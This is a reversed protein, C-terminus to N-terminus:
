YFCMGFMLFRKINRKKRIELDLSDIIEERHSEFFSPIDKEDGLIKLVTASKNLANKCPNSEINKRM